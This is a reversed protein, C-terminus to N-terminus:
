LKLLYPPLSMLFLSLYAQWFNGVSDRLVAGWEVLLAIGVLRNANWVGDVNLKLMGPRLKVCKVGPSAPFHCPSSTPTYILQFNKWWAITHPVVVNPPDCKSSWLMYNRATWIVYSHILILDFIHNDLMPILSLMWEDVTPPLNGNPLRGLVSFSWVCAVFPYNRLIHVGNEGESGCLVCWSDITIRRKVLNSKSM